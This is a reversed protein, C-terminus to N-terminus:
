GSGQGCRSTMGRQAVCAKVLHAPALGYIVVESLQAVGRARHWTSDPQWRLMKKIFTRSVNFLRAIEEQPHEGQEVAAVVRERLEKPYAKM